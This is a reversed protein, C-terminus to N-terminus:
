VSKKACSQLFLQLSREMIILKLFILDLTICYKSNNTRSSLEEIFKRKTM